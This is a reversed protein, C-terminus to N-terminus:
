SRAANKFVCVICIIAVLLQMFVLLWYNPLTYFHVQSLCHERITQDPTDCQMLLMFHTLYTTAAVHVIMIPIMISAAWRKGRYLFYSVLSVLLLIPIFLIQKNSNGLSMIVLLLSPLPALVAALARLKVAAKMM